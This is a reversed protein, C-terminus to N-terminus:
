ILRTLLRTIPECCRQKVLAMGVRRLIPQAYMMELTGVSRKGAGNGATACITWLGSQASGLMGLDQLVVKAVNHGPAGNVAGGPHMGAGCLYLSEVPARYDAWGPIPRFGFLQNLFMGGHFINGGTLGYERELDLPTITYTGTINGRLNPAYGCLTDVVRKTFEPKLDDWTGEALDIPLQQIGTNIM